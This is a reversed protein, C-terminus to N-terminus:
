TTFQGNRNGPGAVAGYLLLNKTKQQKKKALQNSSNKNKNKVRVVHPTTHSQFRRIVDDRATSPLGSTPGIISYRLPVLISVYAHGQRLSHSVSSGVAHEARRQISLRRM